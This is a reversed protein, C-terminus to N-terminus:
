FDGSAGPNYPHDNLIRNIYRGPSDTNKFGRWTNPHVDWYQYIAGERFRVELLQDSKNYRAAMTRPRDPNSTTTPDYFDWAEDNAGITTPAEDFIGGGEGTDPPPLAADEPGFLALQGPGPRTRARSRPFRPRSRAM